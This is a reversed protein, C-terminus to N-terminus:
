KSADAVSLEGRLYKKYDACTMRGSEDSYPCTQYMLTGLKGPKIIVGRGDCVPCRVYPVKSCDITAAKPKAPAEAVVSPESTTAEDDAQALKLYEAAQDFFRGTTGKLEMYKTLWDKSQQYKQLHYSNKGFYFCLDAPVVSVNALVRMFHRNARAFDGQNMLEVGRDMERLDEGNMVSVEEQTEQAWGPSFGALGFFILIILAKSYNNRHNYYQFDPNAM